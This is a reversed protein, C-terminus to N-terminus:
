LSMLDIAYTDMAFNQLRVALQAGWPCSATANHTLHFFEMPKQGGDGSGRAHKERFEELSKFLYHQLVIPTDSYTTSFPGDFRKHHVDVTYYGNFFAFHHPDGSPHSVHELNVISKVHINIPGDSAQFCSLYNALAGGRPRTTHNDSGMARWNVGLAGYNEYRRLFDPLSQNSDGRELVFFEDVDIFAM